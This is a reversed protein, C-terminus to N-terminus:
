RDRGATKSKQKNKMAQKQQRETEKAIATNVELKFYSAPYAKYRDDLTKLLNKGKETLSFTAKHLDNDPNIISVIGMDNLSFLNNLVPHVLGKPIIDNLEKFSIADKDMKMFLLIDTSSGIPKFEQLYDKVVSEKREFATIPANAVKEKDQDKEHHNKTAGIAVGAVVAGIAFIEEAVKDDDKKKGKSAKSLAGLAKSVTPDVYEYETKPKVEVNEKVKSKNDLDNLKKMKDNIDSKLNNYKRIDYGTSSLHNEEHAIIENLDKKEARHGFAGYSSLNWKCDSIIKRSKEWDELQVSLDKISAQLEKKEAGVGTSEAQKLQEKLEKYEQLAIVKEKHLESLQNNLEKISQNLTGRDSVVENAKSDIANANVGVHIQPTRDIGQDKLSRWDIRESIGSKELATNAHSAWQERWDVYRETDKAFNEGSKSYAFEPNWNRNKLGFGEESIDRMTLMVHIHPNGDLKDHIAFDAIMGKSVFTENVFNRTLEIQSDRSLEKPLAINIERALQSDKRKEAKEVENWLKARDHVWEPSKEPAMIETHVIGSKRTYDHELGTKEDKIKEGARYASSAVSSKGQTRGIIQSSFHYIAM